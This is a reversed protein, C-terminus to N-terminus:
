NDSLFKELKNQMLKYNHQMKKSILDSKEPFRALVQDATLEKQRLSELEKLIIQYNKSIQKMSATADAMDAARSAKLKKITKVTPSNHYYM